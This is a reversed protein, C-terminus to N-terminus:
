RRLQSKYLGAITKAALFLIERRSVSTLAQHWESHHVGMSSGIIQGITVAHGSWGLPYDAPTQDKAHQVFHSSIPIAETYVQLSIGENYDQLLLCGIDFWNDPTLEAIFNEVALLVHNGQLLGQQRLNGIREEAAKLGASYGVPQPAISSAQVPIGQVTAKGFVQQFAERVASVKVENGSAVIVSIDGGSNIIEKMGPDLTTIVSDVSSKAREAVKNLFQTGKIWGWVGGEAGGEQLVVPNGNSEQSIPMNLSLAENHQQPVPLPQYSQSPMGAVQSSQQTPIYQSSSPLSTNEQPPIYPTFLTTKTDQYQSPDYFPISSVSTSVPAIPSTTPLENSSPIMSPQTNTTQYFPSIQELNTLERELDGQSTSDKSTSEDSKDGVFEFTSEGNTDDSVEEMM